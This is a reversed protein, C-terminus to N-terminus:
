VSIPFQQKFIKVHSLASPSLMSWPLSGCPSTEPVEDRLKNGVKYAIPHCTCDWSPQGLQSPGSSLCMAELFAAYAQVPQAKM